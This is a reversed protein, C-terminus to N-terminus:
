PTVTAFHSLLWCGLAEAFVVVMLMILPPEAGAMALAILALPPLSGAVAGRLRGAATRALMKREFAVRRKLRLALRTAADAVLEPSANPLTPALQFAGLEPLRLRDIRALLQPELTRGPNERRVTEAFAALEVAVASAESSIRRRQLAVWAPWVLVGALLALATLVAVDGPM